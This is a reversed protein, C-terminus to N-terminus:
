SSSSITSSPVSFTVYTLFFVTPSTVTSASSSVRSTFTLPPKTAEEEAATASTAADTEALAPLVILCLALLLWRSLDNDIFNMLPNFQDLILFVVFMLSLIVTLHTLLSEAKNMQM